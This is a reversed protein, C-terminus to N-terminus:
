RWELKKFQKGLVYVIVVSFILTIFQGALYGVNFWNPGESYIGIITAALYFLSFFSIIGFFSVVIALLVTIIKSLIGKM